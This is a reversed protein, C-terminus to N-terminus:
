KTVERYVAEAFQEATWGPRSYRQEFDILPNNARAQALTLRQRVALDRFRDRIMQVQDRVETLDAEDSVRGQGPILYTGGEQMMRPVAIDLMGNLSNLVGQYSGGLAPEWRAFHTTSLLRGAVIVDSRRFHVISDSDSYASPQHIIEIVEGNFFVTRKALLFADTPWGGAPYADRAGDSSTMRTLVKEHAIVAPRPGQGATIMGGGPLTALTANNGVSEPAASTNIIYRIPKDTIKRIAALIVDSSGAAGTDVLVVGEDGVQVALNGSPTALMWVNGQVRIIGVETSAAASPESASRASPPALAVPGRRAGPKVFEPLATEAGGLVAGPPLNYRKEDETVFPNAWPLYHPIDRTTPAVEENPYCQTFVGPRGDAAEVGFRATSLRGIPMFDITKVYPETLYIPDTVVVTITLVDGHRQYRTMITTEDSAIVGNRRIWGWKLHTTTTVLANGVWQGTTFGAWTHPAYAPPHPRGDMWVIRDARRFMGEVRYAVVALNEDVQASIYPGGVPTDPPGWFSYMAPHPMCQHEPVSLLSSNYSLARARGAANLPLGTYDVLAPGEQREPGDEQFGGGGFFTPGGGAPTWTGVIDFPSRAGPQALAPIATLVCVLLAGILRVPNMLTETILTGPM